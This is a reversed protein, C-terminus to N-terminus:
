LASELDVLLRPLSDIEMGNVIEGAGIIMENGYQTQRRFEMSVPNVLLVRRPTKIEWESKYKHRFDYAPMQRTKSDIPHQIISGYSVIDIFSRISFEGNEKFVLVTHRRPIGFLKIAFVENATEIYIDCKQSCKGGLFWCIHTPYLRFDKKKCISVIKRACSLRKLFCRFINFIM